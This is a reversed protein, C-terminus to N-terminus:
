QEIRLTLELNRSFLSPSPPRPLPSARLVAAKISGRVAEDGNCRGFNVDVVEGSPIQRVNIVCEFDSSANPPPDWARLIKDHIAREYQALVGSEEYLRRQDAEPLEAM